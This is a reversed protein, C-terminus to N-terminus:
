RTSSIAIMPFRVLGQSPDASAAQATRASARGAESLRAAGENMESDYAERAEPDKLTRYAENIARFVANAQRKVNADGTRAVRDPHLRRSERRFAPEVEAQESGPEIGLLQYYNLEELLEHIAEVEYVQRMRRDM